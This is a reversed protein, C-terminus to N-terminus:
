KKLFLKFEDENMYGINRKIENGDEFLIVTPISMVGYKKALNTKDSDVDINVFTIDNFEKKVKEFVTKFMNCPGCWNASFELVYKGSELNM